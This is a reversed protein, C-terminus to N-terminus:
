GRFFVFTVVGYLPLLIAFSYLMFGFFSPMRINSEEAYARVMFNPANGLYTLAGMFVCGCSIAALIQEAAQGRRTAGLSPPSTVGM